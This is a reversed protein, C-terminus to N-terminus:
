RVIIRLCAWTIHAVMWGNAVLVAIGFVRNRLIV